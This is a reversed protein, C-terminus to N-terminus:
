AEHLRVKAQDERAKLRTVETPTSEVSRGLGPIEATAKAQETVLDAALETAMAWGVDGTGPEGGAQCRVRRGAHPREGLGPARQSPRSSRRSRTRRPSCSSAWM